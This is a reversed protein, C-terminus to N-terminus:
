YASNDYVHHQDPFRAGLEDYNKGRLSNDNVLNIHDNIVMLDGIHFDPNIGGAANTIFITKVGLAKMVRVPFTVQQMTYGEYYHFRGQMIIVPKGSLNGFILNGEHGLVTSVSFNPISKYPITTEVDM